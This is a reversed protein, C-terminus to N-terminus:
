KTKSTQFIISFRKTHLQSYFSKNTVIKKFAPGLNLKGQINLEYHFEYLVLIQNKM